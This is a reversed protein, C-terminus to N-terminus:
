KTTIKYYLIRGRIVSFGPASHLITDREQSSISITIRAGMVSSYFPFSYQTIMLTYVMYSLYLITEKKSPKILIM